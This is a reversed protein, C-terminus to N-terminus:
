CQLKQPHLLTAAFTTHLHWAKKTKYTSLLDQAVLAKAQINEHSEEVLIPQKYDGSGPIGSLWIVPKSTGKHLWSVISRIRLLWECTQPQRHRALKELTFEQDNEDTSLWQVVERLQVAQHQKVRADTEKQKEQVAIKVDRQREKAAERTELLAICNAEKDILDTHREIKYLIADFQPEFAKWACEFLM